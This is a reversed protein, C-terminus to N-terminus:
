IINGAFPSQRHGIGGGAIKAMEIQVHRQAIRGQILLVARGPPHDGIRRDAHM